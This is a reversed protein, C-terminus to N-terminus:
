TMQLTNKVANQVVSTKRNKKQSARATARSDNWVEGKGCAQRWTQIVGKMPLKNAPLRLAGQELAEKHKKKGAGRMALIAGVIANAVEEEVVPM